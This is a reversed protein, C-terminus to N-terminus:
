VRRGERDIVIDNLELPDIAVYNIDEFCVPTEPVDPILEVQDIPIDQVELHVCMAIHIDKVGVPAEVAFVGIPFWGLGDIAVNESKLGQILRIHVNQPCVPLKPTFNAVM